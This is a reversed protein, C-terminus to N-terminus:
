KTELEQIRSGSLGSTVRTTTLSPASAASLQIASRMPGRSMATVASMGSAARQKFRPACAIPGVPLGNVSALMPMASAM